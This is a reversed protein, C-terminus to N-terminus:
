SNMWDVLSGRIAYLIVVLVLISVFGIVGSVLAKQLAAREKSDESKAFKVGMIIGYIVGLMTIVGMAYPGITSIAEYLPDVAQAGGTQDALTIFKFMNSISEIFM